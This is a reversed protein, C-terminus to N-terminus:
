SLVTESLYSYLLILIDQALLIWFLHNDDIYYYVQFKSLITFLYGLMGHTKNFYYMFVSSIKCLSFLKCMCGMVVQLFYAGVLLYGVIM